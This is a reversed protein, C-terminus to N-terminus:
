KSLYGSIFKLRALQSHINSIKLSWISFDGIQLDSIEVYVDSYYIYYYIIVVLMWLTWLRTAWHTVCQSVMSPTGPKIGPPLMCHQQQIIYCRGSLTPERRHRSSLWKFFTLPRHSVM